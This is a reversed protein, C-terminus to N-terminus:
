FTALEAAVERLRKAQKRKKEAVAELSRADTELAAATFEIDKM